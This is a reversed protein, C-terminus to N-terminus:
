QAAPAGAPNMMKKVQATVEDVVKKQDETLGPANALKELVALGASYSRGFEVDRIAQASMAQLEPAASAFAAKLKPVDVSGPQPQTSTPEAEKKGCGIPALSLALLCIMIWKTM